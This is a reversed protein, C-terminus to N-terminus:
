TSTPLLHIGEEGQSSKAVCPASPFSICRRGEREKRKKGRRKKLRSLPPTKKRNGLCCRVTFLGRRRKKKREKERKKPVSSGRGGKKKKEKQVEPVVLRLTGKKKEQTQPPHDGRRRGRRILTILSSISGGRRGVERLGERGKKGGDRLHSSPGRKGRCPPCEMPCQNRKKQQPHSTSEGGRRRKGWTTARKGKDRGKVSRLSLLKRKKGGGKKKALNLPSGSLDAGGRRRLMEDVLPFLTGRGPTSRRGRGGCFVGGERRVKTKVLPRSRCGDRSPISLFFV